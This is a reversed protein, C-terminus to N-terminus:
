RDGMVQPECSAGRLRWLNMSRHQVAIASEVTSFDAWEHGNLAAHHTLLSLGSVEAQRVNSESDLRLGILIPVAERARSRGMGNAGSIRKEADRSCVFTSLRPIAESGGLTGAAEAAANEISKDDLEMLQFLTSLYALDRTRGLNDIATMRLM